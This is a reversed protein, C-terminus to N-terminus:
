KLLKAGLANDLVKVQEYRKPNWIEFCDLM